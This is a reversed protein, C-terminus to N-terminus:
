QTTSRYLDTIKANIVRHDISRVPWTSKVFLETQFPDYPLTLCSVFIEFMRLEVIPYIIEIVPNELQEKRLISPIGLRFLKLIISFLFVETNINEIILFNDPHSRSCIDKRNNQENRISREERFPKATIQINPDVWIWCTCVWEGLISFVPVPSENTLYKRIDISCWLSRM